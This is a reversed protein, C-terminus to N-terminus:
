IDLSILFRILFSFRGLLSQMIHLRGKVQRLFHAFFQSVTSYQELAHLASYRETRDRDRM